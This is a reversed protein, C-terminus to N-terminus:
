ETSPAETAGPEILALCDPQASMNNDLRYYRRGDSARQLGSVVTAEIGIRDRFRPDARTIRVRDGISFTAQETDRKRLWRLFRSM